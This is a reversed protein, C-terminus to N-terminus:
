ANNGYVPPHDAVSRHTHKPSIDHGKELLEAAEEGEMRIIGGRTSITSEPNTCGYQLARDFFVQAEEANGQADMHNINSYPWYPLKDVASRFYPEAEDYRANRMLVLGYNMLARGNEPSKMTADKWLTEASGWVENRQYTGYAHGGLILLSLVLIATRLKPQNKFILWFTWGVSM